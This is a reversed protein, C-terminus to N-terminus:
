ARQCIGLPTEHRGSAMAGRPPQEPRPPARLRHALLASPRGTPTVVRAARASLNCISGFRPDRPHNHAHARRRFAGRRPTGIAEACGGVSIGAVHVALIGAVVAKTALAAVAARYVGPDLSEAM